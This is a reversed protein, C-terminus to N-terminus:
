WALMGQHWKCVGNCANLIPPFALFSARTTTGQDSSCRAERCARQKGVRGGHPKLSAWFGDLVHEAMYDEKHEKGNCCWLQPSLGLGCPCLAPLLHWVEALPLLKSSLVLGLSWSTKLGRSFSGILSAILALQPQM